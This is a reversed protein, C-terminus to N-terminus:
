AAWRRRPPRATLRSLEENPQVAKAARRSPALAATHGTGAPREFQRLIAEIHRDTFALKGAILLHPINGTRAQEALWSETVVALIEATEAKSHVGPVSM